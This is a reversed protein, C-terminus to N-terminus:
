LKLGGREDTLKRNTQNNWSWDLLSRLLDTDPVRNYRVERRLVAPHLRGLSKWLGLM